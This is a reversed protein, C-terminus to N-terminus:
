CKAIHHTTCVANFKRSINEKRFFKQLMFHIKNAIKIREQLVIQHKNDENIKDGLNNINEVRGFTYNKLTLQGIKNRKSSTVSSHFFIHFSSSLSVYKEGLFIQAIFDLPVFHAPRTARSPFLVFEFCSDPPSFSFSVPLM